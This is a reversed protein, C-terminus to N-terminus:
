IKRTQEKASNIIIKARENLLDPTWEKRINVFSKKKDWTRKKKKGEKRTSWSIHEWYLPLCLQISCINKRTRYATGNLFECSPIKEDDNDKKKRRWFNRTFEVNWKGGKSNPNEEKTEEGGVEAQKSALRKTISEIHYTGDFISM